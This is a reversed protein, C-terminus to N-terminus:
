NCSHALLGFSVQQYCCAWATCWIRDQQSPSLVIASETGDPCTHCKQWQIFTDKWHEACFEALKDMTSVGVYVMISNTSSKSLHCFSVLMNAMEKGKTTKPTYDKGTQSDMPCKDRFEEPNNDNNNDEDKGRDKMVKDDSSDDNDGCGRSPPSTGGGGGPPPNEQPADGADEEINHHVDKLHVVPDRPPRADTRQGSTPQTLGPPGVLYDMPNKSCDIDLAIESVQQTLCQM